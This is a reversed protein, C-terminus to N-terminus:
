VRNAPTRVGNWGKLPNQSYAKSSASTSRHTDTVGNFLDPPTSPHGTPTATFDVRVDLSSKFASGSFFNPLQGTPPPSHQIVKKLSGSLFSETASGNEAM